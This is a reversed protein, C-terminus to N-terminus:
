LGTVQAFRHWWNETALLEHLRPRVKEIVAKRYFARDRLVEGVAALFGDVSERDNILLRDLPPERLLLHSAGGPSSIAPTGCALSEAVVYGFPEYLSPCLSFDAANYLVPVQDHAMNQVITVNQRPIREAPLDGRLALVWHVEPLKDILSKVLSFGKMPHMSGVFLGIAGEQPLDLALRCESADRPKFRDTDIPCWMATSDQSFYHSVEDCVQESNTLVLKGRGSLRELVMSQWWKLYLYGGYKIFPRIAESQGRYTGHYFHIRKFPTARRLPYFGVDSTSIVAVVDASLHRQVNKGIWYGRLTGAVKKGFPGDQRALWAPESNSRHFVEPSYGRARLGRLLERVFHEAGGLGDPPESTLIFM